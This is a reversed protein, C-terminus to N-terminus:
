VYTIGGAALKATEGQGLQFEPLSGGSLIDFAVAQASGGAASLVDQVVNSVTLDTILDDRDVVSDVGDVFPSIGRFYETLQTEIDAKVTVEIAPDIILGFIQIFFETRTIAVVSLTDDTLGLPQRALGTIPDTTISVRVADLLPTPPIGDPDIAVTSEVYVTREPPFSEALLAAPKGAYPYARKVGAVEQAWNRYDAANGGGGPARIVDLVRIRYNEDTEEDAGTTTTTTVTAITEAGAIQTGISLTEGNNLNGIVGSTRATVSIVAFGGAVTAPADVSYRVGNSEGVFDVTTPIITGNTGPLSITLVTAVAVKRSVGYESGLLDLGAGSATTALIQKASDVGFKFLSTLLVAEEVALVRLFAKDNVPTIQGLQAEFRAINQDVIEQTTPIAM